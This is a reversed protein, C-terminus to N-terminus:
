ADSSSLRMDLVNLQLQRRGQWENCQLEYVLDVPTGDSLQSHWGAQSFAIADLVPSNPGSDVILKLHKDGGM